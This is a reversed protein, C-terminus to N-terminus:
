KQKELQRVVLTAYGAIDKWHDIEHPNGNAIRSLKVCIMHLADYEVDNYQMLNPSNTMISRLRCATAAQEAYDGHTKGREALLVDTPPLVPTANRFAPPDAM